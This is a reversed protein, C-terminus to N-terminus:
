HMSGSPRTCTNWLLMSTERCGQFGANQMRGHEWTHYAAPDNVPLALYARAQTHVSSCIAAADPNCMLAVALITIRTMCM